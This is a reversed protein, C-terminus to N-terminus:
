VLFFIIKDYRDYAEMYVCTPIGVQISFLSNYRYNGLIDPTWVYFLACGFIFVLKNYPGGGDKNIVKLFSAKM